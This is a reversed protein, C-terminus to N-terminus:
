AKAYISPGFRKVGSETKCLFNCRSYCFALPIVNIKLPPLITVFNSGNSYRIDLINSISNVLWAVILTAPMRRVIVRRVHSRISLMFGRYKIGTTHYVRILVLIVHMYHMHRM